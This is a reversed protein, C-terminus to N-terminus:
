RMSLWCTVLKRAHEALSYGNKACAWAWCLPFDWGMEFDVNLINQAYAFSIENSASCIRFSNWRQSLMRPFLKMAPQAHASINLLSYRPRISTINLFRTNCARSVMLIRNRCFFTNLFNWAQTGKIARITCFQLIILIVNINFHLLIFNEWRNINGAESICYM